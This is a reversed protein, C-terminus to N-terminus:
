SRIPRIRRYAQLTTYLALAVAPVFGWAAGALAREFPPSLPDRARGSGGVPVDQAPVQVPGAAGEGIRRAATRAIAAVARQLGRV